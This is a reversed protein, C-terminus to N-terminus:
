VESTTHFKTIHKQMDRERLWGNSGVRGCGPHPCQFPSPHDKKIHVQLEKKTGFGNMGVRECSPKTCIYTSSGHQTRMHETLDHLSRLNQEKAKRYGACDGRLCRFPSGYILGDYRAKSVIGHYGRLHQQLHDKRKFGNNGQYRRSLDAPIKCRHLLMSSSPTPCRPCPYRPVDEKHCAQHRLLDGFQAATSDCDPYRCTYASHMKCEGHTNLRPRSGCEDGCEACMYEADGHSTKVHDQVQNFALGSFTSACNSFPCRFVNHGSEASHLRLEKLTKFKLGCGPLCQFPLHNAAKSRTCFIYPDKIYIDEESLDLPAACTACTTEHYLCGHIEFQRSKLINHTHPFYPFTDQAADRAGNPIGYHNGKNVAARKESGMDFTPADDLLWPHEQLTQEFLDYDFDM